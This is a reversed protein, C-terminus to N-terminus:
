HYAVGLVCYARLYKHVLSHMSPGEPLISLKRPVPQGCSRETPKESMIPLTCSELLRQNWLLQAADMRKSFNRSPPLLACNETTESTWCGPNSDQREWGLEPVKPLKTSM